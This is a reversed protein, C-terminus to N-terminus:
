LVSFIDSWAHALIGPRLNRRWQALMGYLLGLISIVIMKQTGQYGHSVGFVLAQGAVAAGASGTVAWLQRQLYGRFVFEECIGASVAVAIWLVHELESRPLLVSISKAQNAGVALNAAWAVGEWVVWFAAAILIEKAARHWHGWAPGMVEALKVRHARLGAWCYYFLAWESVLVGVYLPLVSEHGAAINSGPHSASQLHLGYGTLAALILLLGASHKLSDIRAPRSSVSAQPLPAIEM